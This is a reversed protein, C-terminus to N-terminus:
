AALPIDNARPQMLVNWREELTLFSSRQIGEYREVREIIDQIVFEGHRMLFQYYDPMIKETINSEPSGIIPLM